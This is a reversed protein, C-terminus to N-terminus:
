LGKEKKYIQLLEKITIISCYCQKQVQIPNPIGCCEYNSRRCCEAEVEITYGYGDCNKCIYKDKWEAFEIAFEDVIKELKDITETPLGDFPLCLKERLTM